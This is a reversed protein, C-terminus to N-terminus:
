PQKQRRHLTIGVQVPDMGLDNIMRDWLVSDIRPTSRCTVDDGLGVAADGMGSLGMAALRRDRTRAYQRQAQLALLVDKAQQKLQRMALARQRALERKRLKGEELEALRAQADIRRKRYLRYQIQLM